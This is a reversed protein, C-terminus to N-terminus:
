LTLSQEFGSITGDNKLIENDLQLVAMSLMLAKRVSPECSEAKSFDLGGDRGRKGGTSFPPHREAACM